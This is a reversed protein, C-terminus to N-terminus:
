EDARKEREANPTIVNAHVVYDIKHDTMIENLRIEDQVDGQEWVVNGVQGALYKWRRIRHNQETFLSDCM